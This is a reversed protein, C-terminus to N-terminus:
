GEARGTNTAKALVARALGRFAEHPERLRVTFAPGGDQRVHMAKIWADGILLQGLVFRELEAPTGSMRTYHQQRGTAYEPAFSMRM